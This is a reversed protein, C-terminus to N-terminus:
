RPPLVEYIAAAHEPRQPRFGLDPRGYFGDHPPGALFRLRLYPAQALRERLVAHAFSTLFFHTVRNRRLVEESEPREPHVFAQNLRVLEELYGPPHRAVVNWLRQHLHRNFWHFVSRREAVPTVWFQEFALAARPNEFGWARALEADPVDDYAHALVLTSERPTNDRLWLLAQLDGPALYAHCSPIPVTYLFSARAVCAAVLAAALAPGARPLRRELAQLVWVVLLALAAPRADTFASIGVAASDVYSRLFPLAARVLGDWLLLHQVLLSVGLYRWAPAARGAALAVLMALLGLLTDPLGQFRAVWSWVELGSLRDAAWTPHERTLLLFPATRAAFPLLVVAAGGAASACWRAVERAGAGDGRAARALLASGLWVAIPIAGLLLYRHHLYALASLAAGVVWGPVRRGGIHRLWLATVVSLGLVAHMRLNSGDYYNWKIGLGYSFLAALVAGLLAHRRGRLALYGVAPMVLTYLVWAAGALALAVRAVYLGTLQAFAAGLAVSGPPALVYFSREDGLPHVEPLRGDLLLMASLYGDATGDYDPAVPLGRVPMYIIVGLALVLVLAVALLAGDALRLRGRGAAAALASL